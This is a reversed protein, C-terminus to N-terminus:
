DWDDRDIEVGECIDLDGIHEVGTIINTKWWDTSYRARVLNVAAAENISKCAVHLSWENRESPTISLPRITVRFLTLPGKAKRPAPM